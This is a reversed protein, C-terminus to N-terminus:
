RRGRGVQALFEAHSIAHHSGCPTEMTSIPRGMTSKSSFRVVFSCSSARIKLFSHESKAIQKKFFSKMRAWENLKGGAM